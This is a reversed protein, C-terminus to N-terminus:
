SKTPSYSKHHNVNYPRIRLNIATRNRPHLLAPDKLTCNPRARLSTIEPTGGGKRCNMVHRSELSERSSELKGISGNLVAKGNVAVSQKERDRIVAVGEARSSGRTSSHHRGVSMEDENSSSGSDGPRGLASSRTIRPELLVAVEPHISSKMPNGRLEKKTDRKHFGSAALERGGPARGSARTRQVSNTRHNDTLQGCSGNIM